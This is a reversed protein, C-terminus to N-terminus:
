NTFEILIYLDNDRPKTTASPKSVAQLL